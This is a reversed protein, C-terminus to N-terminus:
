AARSSGSELRVNARNGDVDITCVREFAYSIADTIDEQSPLKREEMQVTVSHSSYNALNATAAVELRALTRYVRVLEVRGEPDEIVISAPTLFTKDLLKEYHPIRAELTAAPQPAQEADEEAEAGELDAKAEMVARRVRERVDEPSATEAIATGTGNSDPQGMGDEAEASPVPSEEASGGFDATEGVGPFSQTTEASLEAKLQEVARRVQDRVDEDEAAPAPPTEDEREATAAFDKVKSPEVQAHIPWAGDRLAPPASWQGWSGSRDKDAAWGDKEAPTEPEQPVWGSDEAATPATELDPGRSEGEATTEPGIAEPEEAPSAAGPAQGVELAEASVAEIAHATTTLPPTMEPAADAAGALSQELLDLATRLSTIAERVGAIAADASPITPARLNQM